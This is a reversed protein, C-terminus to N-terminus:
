AAVGRDEVVQLVVLGALGKDLDVFLCCGVLSRSLGQGVQGVEFKKQKQAHELDRHHQHDHQQADGVGHQQLALESPRMWFRQPGLRTPGKPRSCGSTSPALIKRLSSM